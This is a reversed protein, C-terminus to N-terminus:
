ICIHTHADAIMFFSIFSQSIDGLWINLILFQRLLSIALEWAIIKPCYKKNMICKTDFGSCKLKMMHFITKASFM